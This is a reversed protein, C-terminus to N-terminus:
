KLLCYFIWIRTPCVPNDCDVAIGFPHYFEYSSIGIRKQKTREGLKHVIETILIKQITQFIIRKKQYPEKEGRQEMSIFKMNWLLVVKLAQHMCWFAELIRMIATEFQTNCHLLQEVMTYSTINAVLSTAPITDEHPSKQESVWFLTIVPVAWNGSAPLNM